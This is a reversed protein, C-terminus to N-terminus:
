PGVVFEPPSRTGERYTIWHRRTADYFIPYLSPSSFLWGRDPTYFWLAEPSVFVSYLWGIGDHWVWPFHPPYIWGMWPSYSWGREALATVSWPYPPLSLAYREAGLAAIWHEGNGWTIQRREWFGEGVTEVLPERLLETASQPTAGLWIGTMALPEQATAFHAWGTRLTGPALPLADPRRPDTGRFYELGDFLGDHDFDQWGSRGNAREAASFHVTEWAARPDSAHSPFFRAVVPDGNGADTAIWGPLFGADDVTAPAIAPADGLIYGQNGRPLPLLRISTASLRDDGAGAASWSTGGDLSTAAYRDILTPKFPDKRRTYYSILVRQGDPSLALSPLFAEAGPVFEEVPLAETWAFAPADNEWNEATSRLHFIRGAMGEAPDKAPFALHVTGTHTAVAGASQGAPDRVTADRHVTYSSKLVHHPPHFTAGGDASFVAELSGTEPTAGVHHYAVILRGGPLFLPVAQGYQETSINGPDPSVLAAESWTEGRDDSYSGMVAEDFIDVGTRLIVRFEKWTVFLRGLTPSAPDRDVTIRCEALGAAQGLPRILIPPTWSTGGDESRQLMVQPALFLTDVALLGLAYLTEEADAALDPSAARRFSGGSVTTQGPLPFREWSFGGNSTRAFALALSGGSALRGDECLAWATDPDLESRVIKWGVQHPEDALAPSDAGVTVTRGVGPSLMFIGDPESFGRDPIQGPVHGAFLFVASALSGGLARRPFTM